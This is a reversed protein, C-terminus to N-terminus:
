GESESKIQKLIPKISFLIGLLLLLGEVINTILIIESALYNDPFLRIAYNIILFPGFFLNYLKKFKFYKYIIYIGFVLGVINFIIDM